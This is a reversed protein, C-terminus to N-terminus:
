NSSGQQAVSLLAAEYHSKSFILRNEKGNGGYIVQIDGFVYKTNGFSVSYMTDVVGDGAKLREENPKTSLFTSASCLLTEMGDISKYYLQFDGSVGKKVFFDTPACLEYGSPETEARKETELAARNTM